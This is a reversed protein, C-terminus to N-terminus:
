PEQADLLEPYHRLAYEALAIGLVDGASHEEPIFDLEGARRNQDVEANYRATIADLMAGYKTSDNAAAYADRIDTVLQEPMYHLMHALRQVSPREAGAFEGSIYEYLARTLRLVNLRSEREKRNREYETM